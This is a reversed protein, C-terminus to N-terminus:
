VKVYSEGFEVIVGGLNDYDSKIRIEEEKVYLFTEGHYTYSSIPCGSQVIKELSDTDRVDDISFGFHEVFAERIIEETNQVRQKILDNIIREFM